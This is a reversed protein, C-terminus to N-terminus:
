KSVKLVVHHGVSQMASDVREIATPKKAGNQQYAGVLRYVNIGFCLLVFGFVVVLFGIKHAQGIEQVKRAGWCIGSAEAFKKGAEVEREYREKYKPDNKDPMPEGIFFKNWSM